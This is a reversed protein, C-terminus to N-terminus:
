EDELEGKLIYNIAKDIFCNRSIEWKHEKEFTETMSHDTVDVNVYKQSDLWKILRTKYVDISIKSEIEQTKRYYEKVSIINISDDKMMKRFKRIALIDDKASIITTNGVIGGSPKYVIKYLKENKRKFM